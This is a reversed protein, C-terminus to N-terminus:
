PWLAPNGWAKKEAQTICNNFELFQFPVLICVISWLSLSLSYWLDYSLRSKLKQALLLFMYPDGGRSKESCHSARPLGSLLLSATSCHSSLQRSGPHVALWSGRSRPSLSQNRSRNRGQWWTPREEVRSQKIRSQYQPGGGVRSPTSIRRWKVM